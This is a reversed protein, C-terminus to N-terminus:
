GFAPLHFLKPLLDKLWAVSAISGGMAAAQWLLGAAALLPLSRVLSLIIGGAASAVVSLAIMLYLIPAAGMSIMLAKARLVINM